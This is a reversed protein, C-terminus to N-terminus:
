SRDCKATRCLSGPKFGPQRPSGARLRVTEFHVPRFSDVEYCVVLCQERQDLAWCIRVSTCSIDESPQTKGSIPEDFGSMDCCISFCSLLLFRMAFAYFRRVYIENPVYPPGAVPPPPSIFHFFFLFLRLAWDCCIFAHCESSGGDGLQRTRKRWSSDGCTLVTVM